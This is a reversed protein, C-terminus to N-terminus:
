RATGDLFRVLEALRANVHALDGVHGWHVPRGDDNEPAPHDGLLEALRDLHGVAAAHAAVYADHIQEAATRRAMPQRRNAPSSLVSVERRGIADLCTPAEHHSNGAPRRPAKSGRGGARFATPHPAAM